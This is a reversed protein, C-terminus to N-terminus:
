VSLNASELFNNIIQTLPVNKSIFGSAGLERTKSILNEDCGYATFMVVRMEPREQKMTALTEIGDMAPMRVDLLVADVKTKSVSELADIGNTACEVQYGRQTFLDQFLGLVEPEDDVVLIKKKDDM